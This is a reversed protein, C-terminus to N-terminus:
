TVGFANLTLMCQSNVNRAINSNIVTVKIPTSDKEAPSDELKEVLLVVAPINQWYRGLCRNRKEIYAPEKLASSM